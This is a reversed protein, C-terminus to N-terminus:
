NIAGHSQDFFLAPAGAWPFATVVPSWHQRTEDDFEESVM